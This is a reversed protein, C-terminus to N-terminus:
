FTPVACDAGGPTNFFGGGAATSSVSTITPPGTPNLGQIYSAVTPSGPRAM